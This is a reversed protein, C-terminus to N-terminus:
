CLANEYLFRGRDFRAGESETGDERYPKEGRLSRSPLPRMDRLDVGTLTPFVYIPPLADLTQRM